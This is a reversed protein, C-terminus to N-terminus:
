AHEVKVGGLVGLARVKVVIRADAAAPGSGVTGASFLSLGFGEVRIDAPVRLSLGGIISVKVITTERDDFTTEVLDLDAGGIIAVVILRARARWAGTRRLGGLLALHIGTPSSHAM